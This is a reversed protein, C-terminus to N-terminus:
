VPATGSKACELAEKKAARVAEIIANAYHPPFAVICDTGDGFVTRITIWNKTNVYVEIQDTAPVVICDDTGTKEEPSM